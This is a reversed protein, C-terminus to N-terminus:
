TLSFESNSSLPENDEAMSSHDDRDFDQESM